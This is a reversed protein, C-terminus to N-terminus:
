RNEDNTMAITFLAGNWIFVFAISSCSINM